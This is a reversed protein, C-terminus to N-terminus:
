SVLKRKIYALLNGARDKVAFTDRIAVIKQEIIYETGDFIESM